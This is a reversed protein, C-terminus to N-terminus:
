DLKAAVTERLVEVVEARRDDLAGTRIAAALEDEDALGLAALAARHPPPQAPAQELERQVMGLVNMAVRTHFQVRGETASMVDRELFEHVAEVLQAATPVDHPESM